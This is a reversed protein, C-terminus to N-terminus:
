RLQGLRQTIDALHQLERSLDAREEEGEVGEGEGLLQQRDLALGWQALSLILLQSWSRELLLQQDAPGLQQFSQISRAWRVNMFLLQLSFIFVTYQLQFFM